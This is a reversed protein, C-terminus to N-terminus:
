ADKAFDKAHSASAPAKFFFSIVSYLSAGLSVFCFLSNFLAANDEGKYLIFSM